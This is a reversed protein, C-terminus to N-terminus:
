WVSYWCSRSYSYRRSSAGSLSRTCPAGLWRRESLSPCPRGGTVPGDSLARLLLHSFIGHGLAAEEWTRQDGRASCIFLRASADDLRTFFRSGHLVHEAYCSDIIAITVDAPVSSLLQDLGATDLDAEGPRATATCLWARGDSSVDGHGAFFFLCMGFPGRRALEAFVEGVHPRDASANVSLVHHHGAGDPWCSRAYHHFARADAEAYRLRREDRRYYPDHYADIGIAVSAVASSRSISRAPM